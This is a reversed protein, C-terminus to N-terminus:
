PGRRRAAPTLPPSYLASARLWCTVVTSTGPVAARDEVAVAVLQGDGLLRRRDERRRVQDLVRRLRRLLEGRDEALGLVVEELESVRLAAERVEGPLDVECRRGRRSARSRRSRRDSGSEGARRDRLAPDGRLHDARDAVVVLAQGASSCDSFSTSPPSRRRARITLSASPWAISRSTTVPAAAPSSTWSRDVGADLGVGLLDEAVDALLVRGLARGRDDHVRRSPSTRAIAFQGGTSGLSRTRRRGRPLQVFRAM